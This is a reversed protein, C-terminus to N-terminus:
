AGILNHVDNVILTPHSNFGFFQSIKTPCNFDIKSANFLFCVGDKKGFLDPKGVRNLYTKMLESMTKDEEISLNTVVGQTTKFVVNKKNVQSDNVNSNVESIGMNYGQMWSENGGSIMGPLNMDPNQMLNAYYQMMMMNNVQNQDYQNPMNIPYNFMIQNMNPMPM